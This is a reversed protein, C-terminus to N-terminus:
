MMVLHVVVTLLVLVVLFGCISALAVLMGALPHGIGKFSRKFVPKLGDGEQRIYAM